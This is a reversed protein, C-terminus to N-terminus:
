IELSAKFCWLIKTSFGLCIISIFLCSWDVGSFEPLLNQPKDESITKEEGTLLNQAMIKEREFGVEVLDDIIQNENNVNCNPRTEIDPIETSHYDVGGGRNMQFSLIGEDKMIRYFEKFLNLRVQHLAIHQLVVFSTVFDVSADEMPNLDYGNTELLKYKNNDFGSHKLFENGFEVFSAAIDFGYVKDWNALNLLNKINGGFGFGFDLAVKNEWLKPNKYVDGYLVEWYDTNHDHERFWFSRKRELEDDALEQPTANWWGDGDFNKKQLKTYEIAYDDM